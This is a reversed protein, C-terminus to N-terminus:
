GAGSFGAVLAGEKRGIFRVPRVFPHSKWVPHGIFLTLTAHPTIEIANPDLPPAACTVVECYSLKRVPAASLSFVSVGCFTFAWCNPLSPANLTSPATYACGSNRGDTSIGPLPLCLTSKTAVSCSLTYANSASRGLSGGSHCTLRSSLSRSSSVTPAWSTCHGNM